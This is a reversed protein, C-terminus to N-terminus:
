GYSVDIEALLRANEKISALVTPNSMPDPSSVTIGGVTTTEVGKYCSYYITRAVNFVAAKERSELGVTKSGATGSMNSLDVDGYLNLQDIAYDIIKEANTNSIENDTLHMIAKWDSASISVM